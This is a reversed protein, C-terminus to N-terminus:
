SAIRLAKTRRMAPPALLSTAVGNANATYPTSRQSASVWRRISVVNGGLDAAPQHLLSRPEVAPV